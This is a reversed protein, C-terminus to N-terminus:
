ICIKNTYAIKNEDVAFNSKGDVLFTYVGNSNKVEILGEKLLKQRTEEDSTCVFTKKDM